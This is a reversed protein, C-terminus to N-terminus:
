RAANEGREASARKGAAGHGALPGGPLRQKLAVVRDYSAQLEERSLEGTEVAKEVAAVIREPLDPAPASQNGLMIIDNGAKIAKVAADELSYKARIAAMELDDSMVVGSFGVAGRLVDRVIRRSLSAPLGPEESLIANAIHGVMVAQVAHSAILERYPEMEDTDWSTSVDVPQDHTDYPTSGHGPFHKLVTLIGADQHALCFAKAFAAVHKPQPGFSREKGAVIAGEGNRNLDVVPGLNMNFGNHALEAALRGYVSYATLPDNSAGIQEATPYNQFGKDSSLRQVIGGEQDIALLVPIDTKAHQLFATLSKVQQPSQINHGLFLVGGITGAEIQAALKQLSPEDPTVGRFGVMLMQGILKDLSSHQSAPPPVPANAPMTRPEAAVPQPSPVDAGSAKAATETPPSAPPPTETEAMNAAPPATQSVAPQAPADDAPSQAAVDKAPEGAPPPASEEAPQKAPESATQQAAASEQPFQEAAQAASSPPPAAGAAQAESEVAAQTVETAASPSPLAEAQAEAPASSPPAAEAGQKAPEPATVQAAASEPPLQETAQAAPSPALVADAPKAESEM